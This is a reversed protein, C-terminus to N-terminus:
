EVCDVSKRWCQICSLVTKSILVTCQDMTANFPMRRVLSLTTTEYVTIGDGCAFLAYNEVLTSPCYQATTSPDIDLTSWTNTNLDFVDAKGAAVLFLYQESKVFSFGYTASPSQSLTRTTWSQTTSDFIDAINGTVFIAFRGITVSQVLPGAVSLSAQTWSQTTADFIFVEKHGTVTSPSTRGGALKGVSAATMYSRIVPLSANTFTNTTTDYIAVHPADIGSAILVYKGASTIVGASITFSTTIKWHEGSTANFVQLENSFLRGAGFFLLDDVIAHSFDAPPSMTLTSVARTDKNYAYFPTWKDGALLSYSGITVAAFSGPEDTWSVDALKTREQLFATSPLIFLNSLVLLPIIAKLHM